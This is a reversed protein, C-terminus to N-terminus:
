AFRQTVYVLIDGALPHVVSEFEVYVSGSGCEPSPSRIVGGRGLLVGERLLAVRDARAFLGSLYKAMVPSENPLKSSGFANTLRLHQYASPASDTAVVAVAGSQTESRFDLGKPARRPTGALETAAVTGATLLACRRLFDRRSSMM